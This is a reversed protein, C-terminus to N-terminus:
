KKIKKEFEFERVAALVGTRIEPGKTDLAIGIHRFRGTSATLKEDARYNVINQQHYQLFYVFIYKWIKLTKYKMLDM